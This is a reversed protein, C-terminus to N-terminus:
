NRENEEYERNPFLFSLALSPSLGKILKMCLAPPREKTARIHINQTHKDVRTIRYGSQPCLQINLCLFISDKGQNYWFSLVSKNYTDQVNNNLIFYSHLVM